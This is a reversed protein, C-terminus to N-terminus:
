PGEPKAIAKVAWMFGTEFHTKAIALSRPDPSGGALSNLFRHIFAEVEKIQNITDIEGPTLARYGTIPSDTM